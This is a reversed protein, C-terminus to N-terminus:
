YSHHECEHTPRVWGTVEPNNIFTGLGKMIPLEDLPDKPGTKFWTGTIRNDKTELMGRNRLLQWRALPSDALHHFLNDQALIYQTNTEARFLITTEPYETLVTNDRFVLNTRYWDLNGSDGGFHLIRGSPDDKRKILLNHEVIATGYDKRNRLIESGEGDVMDLLKNGGCITNYRILLGASRDKINNGMCGQKPPCFRNYRLTLGQSETYLNHHKGRRKPDDMQRDDYGNDYFHCREILIDASQNSTMLGNGNDEFICYYVTIHHGSQIHIGAGYSLYPARNGDRDIYHAHHNCGRFHLNKVVIHAPEGFGTREVHGIRLLARNGGSYDPHPNAPQSAESADIIPLLGNKAPIGEITIPQGPTGQRNIAWRSHYPKERWHIQVTDGPNLSAWPVTLPDAHDQGPGVHYTKGLIGNAILLLLVPWRNAKQPIELILSAYCM